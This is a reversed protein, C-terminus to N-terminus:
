KPLRPQHVPYARALWFVGDGHLFFTAIRIRGHSRATVATHVVVVAPGFVCSRMVMLFFRLPVCAYMRSRASCSSCIAHVIYGFHDGADCVCVGKEVAGKQFFVTAALVGIFANKFLLAKLTDKRRAQVTWGRGWVASVQAWFGVAHSSEEFWGGIGWPRRQLLELTTTGEEKGEEAGEEEAYGGKSGYAAPKGGPPENFMGKEADEYLYDGGMGSGGVGDGVGLLSSPDVGILGQPPTSGSSHISSSAYSQTPSRAGTMPAGGEQQSKLVAKAALLIFEASNQGPTPM